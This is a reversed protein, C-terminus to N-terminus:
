RRCPATRRVTHGAPQAPLKSKVPAANPRVIGPFVLHM